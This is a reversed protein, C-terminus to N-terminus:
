ETTVKTDKLGCHAILRSSLGLNGERSHHTEVWWGNSLRVPSFFDKGSPHRPETSVFYRKKGPGWPLLEKTLAGRNILENAVIVPIEKSYRFPEKKGLFVLVERGQPAKREEPGKIQGEIHFPEFVYAPVSLGPIGERSYTKIATWVTDFNISMRVKELDDHLEDMIITLTPPEEVLDSLFRYVEERIGFTAFKYAIFPSESYEQYFADVIKKRLEPRSWALYFDAVQSMIHRTLDHTKLEVEVIAWKRKRLFVVFGDPIGKPGTRGRPVGLRQKSFFVADGGFILTISNEVIGQLEDESAYEHPLHVIGDKLLIEM